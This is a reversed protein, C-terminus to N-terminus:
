ELCQMKKQGEVMSHEREAGNAGRNAETGGLQKVAAEDM